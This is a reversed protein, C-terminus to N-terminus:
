RVPDKLVVKKRIKVHQSTIELFNANNLDLASYVGNSLIPNKLLDLMGAVVGVAVLYLTASTGKISAHEVDIYYCVDKDPYRLWVGICDSGDLPILTNEEFVLDDDTVPKGEEVMRKLRELSLPHIAYIFRGPIEMIRCMTIVEDHSILMGKPYSDLEKIPELLERTDILNDIPKEDIETYIGGPGCFGVPANV